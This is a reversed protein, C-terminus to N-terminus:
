HENKDGFKNLSDLMTQKYEEILNDLYKKYDEFTNLSPIDILIPSFKKIYQEYSDSITEIRSSKLGEPVLIRTGFGYLNIRFNLLDKSIAFNDSVKELKYEKVLQEFIIRKPNFEQEIKYKRQQNIATKYKIVNNTIINFLEEENKTQNYEYDWTIHGDDKIYFNTIYTFEKDSASYGFFCVDDFYAKNSYNEDIKLGTRVCISKFIPEMIKKNNWYNFDRYLHGIPYTLFGYLTYECNFLKFKM